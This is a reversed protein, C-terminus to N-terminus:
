ESYIKIADVGRSSSLPVFHIETNQIAIVRDYEHHLTEVITGLKDWKQAYPGSLKKVM